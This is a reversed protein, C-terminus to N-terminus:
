NTNLDADEPSPLPTRMTQTDLERRIGFAFRPEDAYQVENM